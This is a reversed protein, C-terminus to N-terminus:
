TTLNDNTGLITGNLAATGWAQIVNADVKVRSGNVNNLGYRGGYLSNGAAIVREIYNASAANILINDYTTTDLTEFTNGTIAITRMFKLTATQLTLANRRTYVTNGAITVSSNTSGGSVIECWIGNSNSVQTTDVVNGTVAFRWGNITRQNEVAIGYVPGSGIPFSVNNGTVVAADDAMASDTVLNQILIGARNFGMVTNGTCVMNAGQMVIGDGAGGSATGQCNITNGTFTVYQSQPHCDLGSDTCDTAVCGSVTVNRDVGDNAGITVGHRMDRFTCGTVTVGICGNAVVVGYALGTTSDCHAMTSDSVYCDLCRNFEFCRDGFYEAVVDEIHVNRAYLFQAAYQNFTNGRGKLRLNRLTINQVLTPKFFQPTTTYTDLLRGYPTITTGALSRIRTWEGRQAGGVGFADSSRLYLWDNDALGTASSVVFSGAGRSAATFSTGSGFVGSAVMLKTGNPAFSADLTGNRIELNSALNLQGDIRLTLGCLDLPVGVSAAENIALQMATTDNTVGDGAVGFDKVSVTDRMKSQATREVAGVGSQLFSVLASSTFISTDLETAITSGNKNQVKISYSSGAYLRGIATGNLPYGGRTRAPQTVVQTLAADWYAAQPNAQPELGSVGIWVYGDELPQGNIDTFIPYIANVNVASM